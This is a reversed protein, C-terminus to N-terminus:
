GQHKPLQVCIRTGENLRSNVEITGKHQDVIRKAISLGLGTGGTKRSRAQDVRYFREFLYPLDQERIGIGYDQITFRVQDAREEIFIEVKQESYKLANDLLIILLQKMKEVDAVLWIETQDTDVEIVRGYTQQLSSTIGQVLPLFSFTESHLPAEQGEALTLLSKVLGKLRISESYIAEVAEERVAPDNRAWRKLLSAYSEIITLPTRLEHSADAIFQHQRHFNKELKGIMKNFILGLKDLEDPQMSHSGLDLKQFSGSQEIEQMTDALRNVPRFVLKTYFYSGIFSLIVAIGSAILLGKVLISGYYDLSVLQKAIELTGVVEQGNYIPVRVIISRHGDAEVIDSQARTTFKGNIKLLEKNSYVVNRIHGDHGIIRLMENYILSEKLVSPDDWDTTDHLKEKQLISDAKNLLLQIESQTTIKEFYTYIFSNLFILLLLLWLTSLLTLRIKVSM